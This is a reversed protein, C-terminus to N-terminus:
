RVALVLVINTSMTALTMLVVSGIFWCTQKMLAKHLCREIRECLRDEMERLNSKTLIQSWDIPPPPEM